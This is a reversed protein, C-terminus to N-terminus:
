NFNSSFVRFFTIFKRLILMLSFYWCFMKCYKLWQMSLCLHSLFQTWSSMGLTFLFTVHCPCPSHAARCHSAWCCPCSAAGPMGPFMGSDECVEVTEGWGNLVECFFFFNMAESCHLIDYWSLFFIRVTLIWCIIWNYDIWENGFHVKMKGINSFDFEAGHTIWGCHTMCFAM